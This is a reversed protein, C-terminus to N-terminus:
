GNVPKAATIFDPRPPSCVAELWRSIYVQAHAEGCYHRAGRASAAESNWKIVKLVSSDCQIIFWHIPHASVTDCIECKYETISAM